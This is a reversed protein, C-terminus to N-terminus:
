QLGATLLSGVPTEQNDTHKKSHYVAKYSGLMALPYYSLTFPYVLTGKSHQNPFSAAPKCRYLALIEEVPLHNHHDWCLLVPDHGRAGLPKPVSCKRLLKNSWVSNQDVM